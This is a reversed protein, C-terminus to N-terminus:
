KDNDIVSLLMTLIFLMKNCVRNFELVNKQYKLGRASRESWSLVTCFKLLVVPRHCSVLLVNEQRPLCVNLPLKRRFIFMIAIFYHLYGATCLGYSVCGHPLHQYNITMLPHPTKASQSSDLISGIEISFREFLESVGCYFVNTFVQM